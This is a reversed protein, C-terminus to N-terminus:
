RITAGQHTSHVQGDFKGHSSTRDAPTGIEAMRLGGFRDALSNRSVGPCSGTASALKSLSMRRVLRHNPPYGSTSVYRRRTTLTRECRGIVRSSTAVAPASTGRAIAAQARLCCIGRRMTASSRLSSIRAWARRRVSAYGSIVRSCPFASASGNGSRATSTTIQPSASCWKGYSSATRTRRSIARTARCPNITLSMRREHPAYRPAHSSVRSNLRLRRARWSPGSDTSRENVTSSNRAM